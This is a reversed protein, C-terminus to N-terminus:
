GLNLSLFSFILLCLEKFPLSLRPLIDVMGAEGMGNQLANGIATEMKAVNDKRLHRTNTM